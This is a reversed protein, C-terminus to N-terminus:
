RRRALEGALREVTEIHRRMELLEVRLETLTLERRRQHWAVRHVDSCFRRAKIRKRGPGGIPTGCWECLLDGTGTYVSDQADNTADGM